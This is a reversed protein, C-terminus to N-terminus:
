NLYLSFEKIEAVFYYFFGIINFLLSPKFIMWFVFLAGKVLYLFFSILKFNFVNGLGVIEVYMLTVIEQLQLVHVTDVEVSVRLVSVDELDIKVSSQVGSPLFYLQDCQFCLQKGDFLLMILHFNVYGCYKECCFGNLRCPCQKGCAGECECPTYHKELKNKEDTNRRRKWKSPLGCSKSSYKFKKSKSKRSMSRSKSPM